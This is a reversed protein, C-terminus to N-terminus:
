DFKSCLLLGSQGWPLLQLDQWCRNQSVIRAHMSLHKLRIQSKTFGPVTAALSRQGHSAGPLISSHTAM